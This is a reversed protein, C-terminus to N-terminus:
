PPSNMGPAEAVRKRFTYGLYDFKEHPYRGRRDDDKCYVIRTKGPHLELGCDAFRKELEEKLNRAQQETDCHCLIDDAFREFRTEPHHKTMWRDFTYHLFLNALLPSIVSGQPSGKERPELTGDELQVPAKLWREIYLLVWACDTHKRVARMLLEHSISDFFARIDLDLVWAHQWCRQRAVGVAELAFPVSKLGFSM